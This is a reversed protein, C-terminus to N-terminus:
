VELPRRIRTLHHYSHRVADTTVGVMPTGGAIAPALEVEVPCVGAVHHVVVGVKRGDNPLPAQWQADTLADAFDALARAGRELRDSLARARPSVTQEPGRHLSLRADAFHLIESSM